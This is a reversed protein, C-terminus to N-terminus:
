PSPDEEPTPAARLALPELTEPDVLELGLDELTEPIKAFLYTAGNHDRIDISVGDWDTRPIANPNREAARRREKARLNYCRQRFNIAAGRTEFRIALGGPRTVAENLFVRIDPHM